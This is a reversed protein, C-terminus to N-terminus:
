QRSSTYTLFLATVLQRNPPGEFDAYVVIGRVIQWYDNITIGGVHVFGTLAVMVALYLMM